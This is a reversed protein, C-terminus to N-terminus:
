RSCHSRSNRPRYRCLCHSQSGAVASPDEDVSRGPIVEGCVISGPIVTAATPAAGAIARPDNQVSRPVVVEGAIPDNSVAIIAKIQFIGCTVGDVVIVEVVGVVGKDGDSLVPLIQFMVGVGPVLM